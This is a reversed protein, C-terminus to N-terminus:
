TTPSCPNVSFPTFPPPPPPTHTYTSHHAEGIQFYLCHLLVSISLCMRSAASQVAESSFLFFFFFFFCIWWELQYRERWWTFLLIDSRHKQDLTCLFLTTAMICGLERERERETILHDTQNCSESLQLKETRSQPCGPIALLAALM